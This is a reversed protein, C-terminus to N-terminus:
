NRWPSRSRRWAKAGGRSDKRLCRTVIRELERSLGPVIEGLPAPEQNLVAAMTAMRTEAHFAKKGSLM